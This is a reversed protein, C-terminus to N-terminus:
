PRMASEVAQRPILGGPGRLARLMEKSPSISAFLKECVPDLAVREREILSLWCVWRVKTRWKGKAINGAHGTDLPNLQNWRRLKYAYVADERTGTYRPSYDLVHCRFGRNPDLLLGRSPRLFGGDETAWEPIRPFPRLPYANALVKLSGAVINGGDNFQDRNALRFLRNHARIFESPHIVQETQYVPTVDVGMHFHKGCSEYFYGDKFSKKENVTFGCVALIEVVSDYAERPIIIDDGYVSVVQTSGGLFEVVSCCIAWFILTELEFCFANGMSAFKETRIWEGDVLTEPSRLSDLFMAWDLPLLHYVLERSITDSAMSLDLTSLGSSFARRAADQNISQDDLDVGFRKLRRRMYSHVGQQLFSNGTPEAAICRNTKASKPVTLFRSGKVIQVTSPLLSFAGEPIVGLFCAAWHPDSQVVARWFPLAGITVSTALSIKKDPTAERRGLDFTAGPGWKCDALVVPFRLSGLVACIKRQAGFLAAEVRGTFPRIHIDRFRLNTRHCSEESLRWKRLAEGHLDYSTKLGKYKRLYETIFYDKRFAETDCAAVDPLPLNLLEEQSHQFCLWVSLARPSDIRECLSRVVTRMVDSDRSQM